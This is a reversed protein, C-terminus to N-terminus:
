RVDLGVYVKIFNEDLILNTLINREPFLVFSLKFVWSFLLFYVIFYYSYKRFRVHGM